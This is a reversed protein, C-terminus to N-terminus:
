LKSANVMGGSFRSNTISAKSHAGSPKKVQIQSLSLGGLITRSRSCLIYAYSTVTPDISPFLCSSSSPVGPPHRSNLCKAGHGRRPNHNHCATYRENKLDLRVGVQSRLPPEVILFDNGLEPLAALENSSVTWRLRVGLQHEIKALFRLTRLTKPALGLFVLVLPSLPKATFSKPGVVQVVSM